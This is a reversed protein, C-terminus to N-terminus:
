VSLFRLVRACGCGFDLYKDGPKLAQGHKALISSIDRSVREGQELFSSENMQGHVRFRLKPPPVPLGDPGAGSGKRFRFTELLLQGEFQIRRFFGYIQFVLPVDRLWSRAKLTLSQQDAM